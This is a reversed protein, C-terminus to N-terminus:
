RILSRSRADRRAKKKHLRNGSSPKYTKDTLDKMIRTPPWDPVAMRLVVDKAHGLWPNDKIGRWVVMTMLAGPKLSARM